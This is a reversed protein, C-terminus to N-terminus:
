LALPRKEDPNVSRKWGSQRAAFNELKDKVHANWPTTDYSQPWLNQVTNAGGIELSVLHDV